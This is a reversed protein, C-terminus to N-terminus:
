EGMAWTAERSLESFHGSPLSSDEVSSSISHSWLLSPAQSSEEGASRTFKRRGVFAQEKNGEHLLSTGPFQLCLWLAAVKCPLPGHTVTSSAPNLMQEAGMSDAKSEWSGGKLAVWAKVTTTAPACSASTTLCFSNDSM